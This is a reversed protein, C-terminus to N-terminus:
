STLLLAIPRETRAHAERGEDGLVLLGGPL